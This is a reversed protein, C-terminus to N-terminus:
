YNVVLAWTDFHLVFKLIDRMNHYYAPSIIYKVAKKNIRIVLIETNTINTILRSDTNTNITVNNNLIVQQTGEHLDLFLLVKRTGLSSVKNIKSLLKKSNESLYRSWIIM